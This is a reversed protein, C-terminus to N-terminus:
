LIGDCRDVSVGAGCLILTGSGSDSDGDGSTSSRDAAKGKGNELFEALRSAAENASVQLAPPLSPVYDIRPISIRM